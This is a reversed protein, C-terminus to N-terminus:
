PGTSSAVASSSWSRSPQRRSRATAACARPHEGSPADRASPM